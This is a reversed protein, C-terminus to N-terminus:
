DSRRFRLHTANVYVGGSSDGLITRTNGGASAEAGLHITDGTNLYIEKGTVVKVIANAASKVDAYGGYIADAFVASGTKIYAHARSFGTEGRGVCEINIDYKGSQKVVM